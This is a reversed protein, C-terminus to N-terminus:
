GTVITVLEAGMEFQCYCEPILVILEGAPMCNASPGTHSQVVCRNAVQTLGSVRSGPFLKWQQYQSYLQTAQKSQGTSNFWLGLILYLWFYNISSFIFINFNPDITTSIVYFCWHVFNQQSNIMLTFIYETSQKIKLM